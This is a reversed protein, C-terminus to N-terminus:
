SVQFAPEDIEPCTTFKVLIHLHLNWGDQVMFGAM